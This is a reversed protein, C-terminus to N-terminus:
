RYAGHAKIGGAEVDGLTKKEAVISNVRYSESTLSITTGQILIQTICRKQTEGIFREKESHRGVLRTGLWGTKRPKKLAKFVLSSM